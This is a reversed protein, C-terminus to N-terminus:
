NLKMPAVLMFEPINVEFKEGSLKNKFTYTGMMKGIASHLNCGSVYEHEEDQFLVPQRGVVGEGQVERREGNSDVIVWHRSLLQVPFDNGNFIKVQYAFMYEENLPNSYQEQFFTQVSVKVRNTIKTVM